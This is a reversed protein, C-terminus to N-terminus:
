FPARSLGFRLMCNLRNPPRSPPKDPFNSRTGSSPATHQCAVPKANIGAITRWYRLVSDFAVMNCTTSQFRHGFATGGGVLLPLAQCRLLKARVCQCVGYNRLPKAFPHSDM